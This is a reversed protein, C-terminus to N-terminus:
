VNEDFTNIIVRVRHKRSIDDRWRRDVLAPKACWHELLFLLLLEVRWLSGDHAMGPIHHLAQKGPSLVVGRRRASVHGVRHCRLCRRRHRSCLRGEEGRCRGSSAVAVTTLGEVHVAVVLVLEVLLVHLSAGRERGHGTGIDGCWSRLRCRSVQRCRWLRWVFGVVRSDVEDM